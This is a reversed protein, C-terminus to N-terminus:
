ADYNGCAEQRGLEWVTRCRKQVASREDKIEGTAIKGIMIALGIM